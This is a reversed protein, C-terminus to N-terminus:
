AGIDTKLGEFQTKVWAGILGITAVVGAVIMGTIIAYEVTELGGDDSVFKALMERATAM